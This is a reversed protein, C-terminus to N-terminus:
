VDKLEEVEALVVALLLYAGALEEVGEPDGVKEHLADFLVALPGQHARGLAGAEGVLDSSM